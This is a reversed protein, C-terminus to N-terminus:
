QLMNKYQETGTFIIKYLSDDSIYTINNKINEYKNIIIVTDKIKDIEDLSDILNNISDELLCYKNKLSDVRYLLVDKNNISDINNFTDANCRYANYIIVGLTIAIFFIIIYKM